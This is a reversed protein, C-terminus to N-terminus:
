QEEDPNWLNRFGENMIEFGAGVLLENLVKVSEGSRGYCGFFAAKKNKFELEKMLHIFDAISHLISGGITPSGMLVIKSKFVETILNNQDSKTLNFVKVEVDSEVLRIGEVIKEAVKKTGNWM